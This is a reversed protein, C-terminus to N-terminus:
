FLPLHIQRVPSPPRVVPKRLTQYILYEWLTLIGMLIQSARELHCITSVHFSKLHTPNLCINGIPGQALAQSSNYKLKVALNEDAEGL